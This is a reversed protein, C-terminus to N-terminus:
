GSSRPVSARLSILGIVFIRGGVPVSDVFLARAAVAVSAVAALVAVCSVVLWAFVVAAVAAAGVPAVVPVAVRVAVAVRAGEIVPVPVVGGATDPVTVTVRTSAAVAPRRPVRALIRVAVGAAVVDGAIVAALVGATVVPWGAAKGIVVPVAVAPAAAEGVGRHV